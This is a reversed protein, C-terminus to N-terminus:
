PFDIEPEIEQIKPLEETEPHEIKRPETKKTSVTRKTEQAKESEGGLLENVAKKFNHEQKRAM